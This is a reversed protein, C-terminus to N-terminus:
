KITALTTQMNAHSPVDIRYEAALLMGLLARFLRTNNSQEEVSSVTVYVRQQNTAKHLRFFIWKDHCTLIGWETQHSGMLLFLQLMIKFLLDRDM